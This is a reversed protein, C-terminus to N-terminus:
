SLSPGSPVTELEREQGAFLAAAWDTIGVYAAYTARVRKVYTVTESGRCYGYRAYAYNEPRELLLIAKEVSGSWHNPDWGLWAALRQADRVHGPGANYAAIVFNIREAEPVTAFRAHLWRVYKVGAHINEEPRHFSAFGMDAATPPMLQMLGVAGAPSQAHPEFGSEASMQATLLRWDLDYQRAYKRVTADYPSLTVAYSPSPVAPTSIPYVEAAPSAEIAATPEPTLTFLAALAIGSFTMITNRTPGM